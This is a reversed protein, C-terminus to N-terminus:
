TRKKKQILNLFLLSFLFNGDLMLVVKDEFGDIDIDPLETENAPSLEFLGPPDM